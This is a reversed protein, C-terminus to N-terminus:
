VVPPRGLRAMRWATSWRIPRRTGAPATRVGELFGRASARLSSPSRCRLLTLVVWTAVYGIALPWPLLRRALWVRNRATLWFARPHRAPRSEPHHVVLDARYLLKYGEDLLRWALATEEMAYFFEDPLGGARDLADRRVVCAGGLFTTVESSREPDGARLRPVHRRQSRGSAPDVIRFTVVGLAADAEFAAVIEEVLERAGLTADDDLFGVIDGSSERAGVNRGAPVGVNEPLEVLRVGEPVEAGPLGNAVVVIEGGSRQERISRVAAALEEPRDGRTLIVWSVKM